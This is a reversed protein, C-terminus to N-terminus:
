RYNDFNLPISFDLGRLHKIVVQLDDKKASSVRIKEGEIQSQMKPGIDKIIKVLEKAKDKPIGTTIVAIQKLNSGFVKEPENFTLSKPSIGRKVAKTLVIDKLARLKFDDTTVLTINKEELSYEISSNTGKFDYRNFLEKKAQNIANAVEQMNVESVIDFSFSQKAM